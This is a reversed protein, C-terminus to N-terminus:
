IAYSAGVGLFVMPLTMAQLPMAFQLRPFIDISRWLNIPASITVFAQPRWEAGTGRFAIPSFGIGVVRYASFEVYPTSDTFYLTEDPTSLHEFISKVFQVGVCADVNWAEHNTGIRAEFGKSSGQIIARANVSLQLTQAALHCSCLSVLLSFSLVKISMAVKTLAFRKRRLSLPPPGDSAAVIVSGTRHRGQKGRGERPGGHRVKQRLAISRAREGSRLRIQLGTTRAPVICRALQTEVDGIWRALPPGCCEM